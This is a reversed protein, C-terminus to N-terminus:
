PMRKDGAVFAGGRVFILVPRGSAAPEPAFVDLKNLEAPGYSIDREVKVGAYPEKPQLPAYLAATKPPDVNRGIEILKWAIDDPMPSQQAHVAPGLLLAALVLITSKVRTM